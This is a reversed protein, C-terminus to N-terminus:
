ASKGNGGLVTNYFTGQMYEFQIQGYRRAKAKLGLRFDLDSFWAVGLYQQFKPGNQLHDQIMLEKHKITKGVNATRRVIKIGQTIGQDLPTFRQCLFCFFHKVLLQLQCCYCFMELTSCGSFRQGKKLGKILGRLLLYSFNFISAFSTNCLYSCSAITVNFMEITLYGLFRQDRKFGRIILNVFHFQCILNVIFAFPTGCQNSCSVIM